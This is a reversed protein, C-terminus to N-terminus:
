VVSRVFSSQAVWRTLDRYLIPVRLTWCALVIVALTNVSREYKHLGKRSKSVPPVFKIDDDSEGNSSSESASNEALLDDVNDTEDDSSQTKPDELDPASPTKEERKPM